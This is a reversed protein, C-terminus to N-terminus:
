SSFCHFIGNFHGRLTNLVLHDVVQCIVEFDTLVERRESFLRRKKFLKKLSIFFRLRFLLLFADMRESRSAAGTM